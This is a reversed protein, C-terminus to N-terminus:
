YANINKYPIEERAILHDGENNLFWNALIRDKFLYYKITGDSYLCKYLVQKNM